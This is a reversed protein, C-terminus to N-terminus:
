NLYIISSVSDGNQLTVFNDLLPLGDTRLWVRFVTQNTRFLNQTSADIMIDSRSGIVYMSPDFLVVDGPTGLNPLKETVYVPRTMLTGVHGNSSEVGSDNIFFTSLGVIDALTGPSVMWISRNWCLPILNSCMTSIDKTAIHGTAQRNVPMASNSNLLGLPQLKATGKGNIFAYEEYWAAARGFLRILAQEGAAGIDMIFQNSAELIGILSNAKLTLNDFTPESEPISPSAANGGEGWTFNIGGFWPAVGLAELTEAAPKPCECFASTMPIVMARPRIFSNEDISELLQTSYTQPVLYGGTTGSSENMAAKQIQKDLINREAENLRGYRTSRSNSKVIARLFCWDEDKLDENSLYPRISERNIATHAM